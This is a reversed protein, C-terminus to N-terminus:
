ETVTRLAIRSFALPFLDGSGYRAYERVDEPADLVGVALGAARLCEARAALEATRVLEVRAM